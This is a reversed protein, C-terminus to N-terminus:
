DLELVLELIHIVSEHHLMILLLLFVVLGLIILDIILLNSFVNWKDIILNGIGKSSLEEKHFLIRESPRIGHLLHDLDLLLYFDCKGLGDVKFPLGIFPVGHLCRKQSLSPLTLNLDFLTPKRM